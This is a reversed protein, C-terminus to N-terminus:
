IKSKAIISQIWIGENAGYTGSVGNLRPMGLKGGKHHLAIVDWSSNFVPSGSSGGETEARYHVRSVGPIVPKGAAPGEHDIIENDDFSYSLDLGGPHGIIYVQPQPPNAELVPLARAVKLAAVNKPAAKLRL